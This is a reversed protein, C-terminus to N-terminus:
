DFMWDRSEVFEKERQAEVEDLDFEYTGGSMADLWDPTAGVNRQPLFPLKGKVDILCAVGHRRVFREVGIRTYIEEVREAGHDLFTVILAM